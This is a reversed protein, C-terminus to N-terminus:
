SVGVFGFPNRKEIDEIKVSFKDQLDELGPHSFKFYLRDIGNEECAEDIFTNIGTIEGLPDDGYYGTVSDCCTCVVYWPFYGGVRRWVKHNSFNVALTRSTGGIRTLVAKNSDEPQLLVFVPNKHEWEPSNVPIAEVKKGEPLFSLLEATSINQAIKRAIKEAGLLDQLEM